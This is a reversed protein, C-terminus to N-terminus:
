RAGDEGPLAGATEGERGDGPGEGEVEVAPGRGTAANAGRARAGHLHDYVALVVREPLWGLSELDEYSAERLARVSGFERLLRARRAPGLGALGELSSSSMRKGRLRRHYSIAFRHAEDRVRQLLFLAESGRPIRLPDPKGRVFVEEFQKALAAVAIGESLGLRELVRVGVSLQGKGGDLLLLQPPYAFRRQTKRATNPEEGRGTRSREEVLASLRRTLVEEMAAYDDNGPVDRVRFHRYDSKKALGDELVVMSGVYDTGQLHSMDYCEIRLPAREMGLAVRLSEIARARSDYDSARRMRHQSLDESANRAASEMLARKGGRVPVRLVVPGGRREALFREYAAAQEPLEPVLVLRPIGSVTLEGGGWRALDGAGSTWGEADRGDSSRTRREVREPGADAYLQELVQGVLQARTLEEVKDVVFGRHGVMRGRRVHFVCVAAEFPDDVMGVVDLDEPGETVVQQHELAMQLTALQDRRRAAREFDLAGAAEEMELRLRREVDETDGAFFSMLDHVLRDYDDRGVAGICPGSCREIHYLLCPKALKSHRQFKTDSCSRVGFTRLLLDLTDRLAGVHAFPGFYRIGQRHRGRVVAARPWEDPLTVALYPYSKDDVLRINFRPRHRKILSYELLIAEVENSVQIWELHDADEVLQATRPPLTVPDALYSALRGRLSKAKGVYLVRSDADLFQYSGPADPIEGLRPRERVTGV